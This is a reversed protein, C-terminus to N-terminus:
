VQGFSCYECHGCGGCPLQPTQNRADLESWFRVAAKVLQVLRDQPIGGQQTDIGSVENGDDDYGYWSRGNTTSGAACFDGLHVLAECGEEMITLHPSVAFGCAGSQPDGWSRHLVAVGNGEKYSPLHGHGAALRKMRQYTDEDLWQAAASRSKAEEWAPDALLATLLPPPNDWEKELWAKLVGYFAGPGPRGFPQKRVEKLALQAAKEWGHFSAQWAMWDFFEVGHPDDRTCQRWANPAPSYEVDNAKRDVLLLWGASVCDIAYSPLVVTKMHEEFKKAM